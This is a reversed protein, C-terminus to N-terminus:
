KCTTIMASKCCHFFDLSRRCGCCRMSTLRAGSNTL